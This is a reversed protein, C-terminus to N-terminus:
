LKDCTRVLLKYLYKKDINDAWTCNILRDKTTQAENKLLFNLVKDPCEEKLKKLNEKITEQCNIYHEINERCSSM